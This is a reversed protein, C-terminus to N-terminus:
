VIYFKSGTVKIAFKRIEVIVRSSRENSYKMYKQFNDNDHESDNRGNVIKNRMKCNKLMLRRKIAVSFLNTARDTELYVVYM